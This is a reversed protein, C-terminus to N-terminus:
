FKTKDKNQFFPGQKVEIFKCNELMKFGHGGNILIIIDNKSAFKSFLYKKKQNYFNIKMKGNLIILVESTGTIERKIKKHLHPQILTNKSHNMYAVQQIMRNNTFFNVGTKKIYSSKIIIALTKNKYTINQIM